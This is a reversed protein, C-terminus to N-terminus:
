VHNAEDNGGEEEGDEGNQPPQGSPTGVQGGGDPNMPGFGFMPGWPGGNAMDPGPPPPHQGFYGGGQPGM